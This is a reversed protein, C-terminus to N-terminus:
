GFDSFVIRFSSTSLTGHLFSVRFESNKGQKFDMDFSIDWSEMGEVWMSGCDEVMDWSGWVLVRTFWEELGYGYVMDGYLRMFGFLGLNKEQM